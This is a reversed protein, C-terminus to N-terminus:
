PRVERAWQHIAKWMVSLQASEARKLKKSRPHAEVRAALLAWNSAECELQLRLARLFRGRPEKPLRKM